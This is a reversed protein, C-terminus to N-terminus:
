KRLIQAGARNRSATDATYLPPPSLPEMCLDMLLYAIAKILISTGARNLGATDETYLATPSLPEM